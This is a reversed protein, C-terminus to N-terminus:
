IKNFNNTKNLSKNTDYKIFEKRLEQKWRNITVRHVDLRDSIEKDQLGISLYFQMKEFKGLIMWNSPYTIKM